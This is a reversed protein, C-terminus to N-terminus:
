CEGRRDSRAAIPEETALHEDGAAALPDAAADGDTEGFLAGVDDDVVVAVGAAGFFRQGLYLREPLRPAIM